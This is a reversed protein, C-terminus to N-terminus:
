IHILSLYLDGLGFDAVEIRNKEEETLVICAKELMEIARRKAEEYQSRTIMYLGM